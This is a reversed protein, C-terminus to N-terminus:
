EVWWADISDMRFRVHRNTNPPWDPGDSAILHLYESADKSADQRERYQEEGEDSELDQLFTDPHVVHGTFRAGGVVVSIKYGTATLPHESSADASIFQLLPDNHAM